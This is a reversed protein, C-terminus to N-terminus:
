QTGFRSINVTQSRHTLPRFGVLLSKTAKVFRITIGGDSHVYGNSGNTSTQAELNQTMRQSTLYWSKQTVFLLTIKM